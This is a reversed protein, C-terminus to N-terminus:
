NTSMGMVAITRTSVGLYLRYDNNGFLLANGALAPILLVCADIVKPNQMIFTHVSSLMDAAM